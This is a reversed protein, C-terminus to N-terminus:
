GFDGTLSGVGCLTRERKREREREGESGSVVEGMLDLSSPLLAGWKSVPGLSGCWGKPKRTSSFGCM